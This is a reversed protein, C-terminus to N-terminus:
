FATMPNKRVNKVMVLSAPILNKVIDCLPDGAIPQDAKQKDANM